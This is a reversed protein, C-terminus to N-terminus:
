NARGWAPPRDQLDPVFDFALDGPYRSKQSESTYRNVIPKNLKAILNNEVAVNITSTEPGEDINMQDMYGVFLTTLAPTAPDIDIANGDELLLTSGNELLLVNRKTDLLGFKIRCLRGQYPVQLALSIIDTPVGSLSLNAGAASIDATEKVESISLLEGTGSYTVGDVVLDGLGTWFYLPAVSVEEGNFITTTTDFMLEVAFFVFIEPELVDTAISAIDRTM